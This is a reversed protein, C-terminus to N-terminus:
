GQPFEEKSIQRSEVQEDPENNRDDWVWQTYACSGKHLAAAIARANARASGVANLSFAERGGVNELRGNSANEGVQLKEERSKWLFESLGSRDDNFVPRTPEFPHYPQKEIEKM